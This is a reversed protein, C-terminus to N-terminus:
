WWPRYYWDYYWDDADYREDYYGYPSRGRGWRDPDYEVEGNTEYEWEDQIPEYEWEGPRALEARVAEQFTEAGVPYSGDPEYEIEGGPYHYEWENELADYDLYGPQGFAREIAAELASPSVNRQAAAPAAYILLLPLATVAAWTWNSDRRM